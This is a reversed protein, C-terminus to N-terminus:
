KVTIIETNIQEDRLEFIHCDYVTRGEFNQKHSNNNNNGISKKKGKIFGPDFLIICVVVLLCRINGFSWKNAESNGFQM